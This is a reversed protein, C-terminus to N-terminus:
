YDLIEIQILRRSVVLVGFFFPRSRVFTCAGGGWGNVKETSTCPPKGADEGGRKLSAGGTVRGAAVPAKNNAAIAAVTTQPNVRRRHFRLVNRGIIATATRRQALAAERAERGAQLALSAAAESFYTQSAPMVIPKGEVVEPEEKLRDKRRTEFIFM